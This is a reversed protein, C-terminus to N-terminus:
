LISSLFVCTVAVGLITISLVILMNKFMSAQDSMKDTIEEINRMKFTLNNYDSVIDTKLKSSPMRAIKKKLSQTIEAIDNIDETMDKKKM